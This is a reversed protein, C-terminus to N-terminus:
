SVTIIGISILNKMIDSISKNDRIPSINAAPDSVVDLVNLHNIRYMAFSCYTLFLITASKIMIINILSSQSLFVNQNVELLHQRIEKESGSSLEFVTPRLQESLDDGKM